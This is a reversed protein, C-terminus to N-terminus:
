RYELVDVRGVWLFNECYQNSARNAFLKPRWHVLVLARPDANCALYLAKPTPRLYHSRFASLHSEFTFRGCVDHANESRRIASQYDLQKCWARDVYKRGIKLLSTSKEHVREGSDNLFLIRFHNNGQCGVRAGSYAELM